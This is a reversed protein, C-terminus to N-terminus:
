HCQFVIYFCLFSHIFIVNNSGVNAQFFCQVYPPISTTVTSLKFGKMLPDQASLTIYIYISVLVVSEKLGWQYCTKHVFLCVPSLKGWCWLFRDQKMFNNHVLDTEVNLINIFKHTRQQRKEITLQTFM